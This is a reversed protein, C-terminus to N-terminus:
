DKLGVRDNFLRVYLIPAAMLVLGVLAVVGVLVIDEYAELVVESIAYGFLILGGLFAIYEWVSYKKLFTEKTKNM